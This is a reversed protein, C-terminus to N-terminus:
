ANGKGTMLARATKLDSLKITVTPKEGRDEMYGEFVGNNFSLFCQPGNEVKVNILVNVDRIEEQVNDDEETIEQFGSMLAFLIIKVQMAEDEPSLNEEPLANNYYPLAINIIEECNRKFNAFGSLKIKGEAELKSLDIKSQKLLRLFELPSNFHIEADYKSFKKEREFYIIDNKIQLYETPGGGGVSVKIILEQDKNMFLIRENVKSLESIAYLLTNLMMRSAIVDYYGM